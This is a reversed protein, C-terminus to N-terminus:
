RAFAHKRKSEFLRSGPDSKMRLRSSALLRWKILVLKARRKTGPLSQLDTPKRKLLNKRAFSKKTMLSPDVPM